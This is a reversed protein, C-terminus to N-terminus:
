NVIKDSLPGEPRNAQVQPEAQQRVAGFTEISDGLPLRALGALVVNLQAVTLELKITNEM